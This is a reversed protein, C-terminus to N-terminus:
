DEHISLIRFGSQSLKETFKNLNPTKEVKMVMRRVLKDTEDFTTLSIINEHFQKTIESLRAIRGEAELSAFAIRVGPMKMGFASQFQELVDYRTIIGLLVNHKDAVAVIPMDNVMLLTQEFMEDESVAQNKYRSIEGAKTKLLFQEKSLSSIFCSEYIFHRTIIGQYRKEEVVPIGDLDHKEMLDLAEQVSANKQIFHTKRLPVMHSKVFM